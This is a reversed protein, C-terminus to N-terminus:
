FIFSGTFLATEDPVDKRFALFLDLFPNFRISFIFAAIHAVLICFSLTGLFEAAKLIFKFSQFIARLTAGPIVLLFREHILLFLGRTKKEM